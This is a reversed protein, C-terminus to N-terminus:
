EEFLLGATWALIIFTFARQLCVAKSREATESAKGSKRVAKQTVYYERSICKDLTKPM